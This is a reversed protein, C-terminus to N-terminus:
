NMHYICYALSTRNVLRRPFNKQSSAISHELFAVESERQGDVFVEEGSSAEMLTCRLLIDDQNLDFRGLYSAM